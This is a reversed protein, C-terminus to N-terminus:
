RNKIIANKYWKGAPSNIWQEAYKKFKDQYLKMTNQGTRHWAHFYASGHVQWELARPGIKKALIVSVQELLENRGEEWQGRQYVFYV